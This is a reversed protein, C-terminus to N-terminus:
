PTTGRELTHWSQVVKCCYSIQKSAVRSVFLLKLSEAGSVRSKLKENYCILIRNKRLEDLELVM